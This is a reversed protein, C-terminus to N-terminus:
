LNRSKIFRVIELRGIESIGRFMHPRNRYYGVPMFGLGWESNRRFAALHQDQRRKFRARLKM